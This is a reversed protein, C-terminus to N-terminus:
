RVSIQPKPSGRLIKSSVKKKSVSSTSSMLINLTEHINELDTQPSENPNFFSNKNPLYTQPLDSITVSYAQLLMFDSTLDVINVKKESFVLDYRSLELTIFQTFQQPSVAYVLWRHADKDCDVWDFLYISNDEESKFLSLSPGEFYDLDGIKQLQAIPFNEIKYGNLVEM